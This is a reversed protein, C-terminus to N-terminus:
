AARAPSRRSQVSDVQRSPLQGTSQGLHDLGAQYAVRGQKLLNLVM